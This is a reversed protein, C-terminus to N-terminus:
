SIMLRVSRRGFQRGGGHRPVGRARRIIQVAEAVVQRDTLALIVGLGDGNDACGPSALFQEDEYVVHAAVEGRVIRCFLCSM